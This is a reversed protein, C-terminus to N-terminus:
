VPQSEQIDVPGLYRGLNEASLPKQEVADMGAGIMDDVIANDVYATLGCIFCAQDPYRRRVTRVVDMGSLDPMNRDIFMLKPLSKMEKLARVARLGGTATIVELQHKRLRAAMLELSVSDDDVLLVTDGPSLNVMKSHDQMEHGLGIDEINNEEFPLEVFFHTGKATETIFQIKGNRNEIARKVLSLGVGIGSQIDTGGQTTVFADFIRDRLKEPIGSGTDAVELKVMSHTRDVTISFRVTGGEGTHKIANSILNSLILFADSADVPLPPGESRKPDVIEGYLTIGKQEATLEHQRMIKHHLNKPELPVLVRKGGRSLSHISSYQLLADRAADDIIKIYRGTEGHLGEGRHLTEAASVIRSLPARMEHSMLRNFEDLSKNALTLEANLAKVEAYRRSNTLDRIIVFFEPFQTAGNSTISVAVPVNTEGVLIEADFTAPSIESLEPYEEEAQLQVVPAYIVDFFNHDTLENKSRKAIKTFAQNVHIFRGSQSVIAHGDTVMDFFAAFRHDSRVSEYSRLSALTEAQTARTLAAMRNVNAIRIVLIVSADQLPARRITAKHDQGNLPFSFPVPTTQAAGDHLITQGSPTGFYLELHRAAGLRQATRNEFLVSGNADVLIYPFPEDALFTSLAELKPSPKSM